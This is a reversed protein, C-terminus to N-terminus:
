EKETGVQGLDDGASVGTHYAVVEPHLMGKFGKLLYVGMFKSPKMSEMKARATMEDAADKPLDVEVIVRPSM